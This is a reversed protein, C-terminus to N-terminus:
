QKADNYKKNPIFVNIIYIISSIIIGFVIIIILINKLVHKIKKNKVKNREILKEIKKNCEDVKQVSDKYEALKIYLNKSEKVKNVNDQNFYSGAVEYMSNYKKEELKKLVESNIIKNDDIDKISKDILEVLELSNDKELLLEADYIIKAKKNKESQQLLINKQDDSAHNVLDLFHQNNSYDLLMNNLDEIKTIEYSSLFRILYSDYNNEDENLIMTAFCFANEFDKKMLYNYAENKLDEITYQNGKQNSFMAFKKTVLVTDISGCEPCKSYDVVKNSARDSTKSMEYMDYRTGAVANTISGLAAWAAIKQQTKNNKLDADTYCSIKRCVNCRSYYEM